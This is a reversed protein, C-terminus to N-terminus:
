IRAVVARYMLNMDPLMTPGLDQTRNALEM